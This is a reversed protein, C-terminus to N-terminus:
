EQTLFRGSANLNVAVATLQTSNEVVLQVEQNRSVRMAKSDIVSRYSTMGPCDVVDTVMEEYGLVFSDYWFWPADADTFPSWLVTTATGEPVLVMGVSILALGGPTQTADLYAALSGRTRILTETGHSAPSITFASTGAAFAAVTQAFGTWHLNPARGRGRAM